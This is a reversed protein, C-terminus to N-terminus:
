CDRAHATSDLETIHFQVDGILMELKQNRLLMINADM